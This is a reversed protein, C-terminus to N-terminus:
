HDLSKSPAPSPEMHSGATMIIGVLVMAGGIIVGASPVESFIFMALISAGIPEGLMSLSVFAAPLYKLSWNLITHGFITSVIALAGFIAFEQWPYPWLPTGSALATAFLVIAATSYILFAYVIVGIRQRLVRGALLYIAAALMGILALMDGYVKGGGLDASSIVVVGILGLIIGAGSRKPKEKLFIYGLIGVVIPHCTILVTASTISTEKLSANFTLFHLALIAGVGLIVWWHQRELEKIEKRDQPRLIVLPLLILAAFLMRYAAIVGPPADSWRIFISAFSIATIAM